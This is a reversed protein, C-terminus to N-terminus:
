FFCRGECTLAQSLENVLKGILAGQNSALFVYEPKSIFSELEKRDIEAGIGISFIEIGMEKLENAIESPDKTNPVYTQQGDTM